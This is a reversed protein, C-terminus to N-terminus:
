QFEGGCSRQGRDDVSLLRQRVVLEEQAPAERLVRRGGPVEGDLVLPSSAPRRGGPAPDPGRAGGRRPLTQVLHSAGAGHHVPQLDVAHVHEPHSAAVLGAESLVALLNVEVRGRRGTLCLWM